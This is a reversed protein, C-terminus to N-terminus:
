NRLSFHSTGIAYPSASRALQARLAALVRRDCPADRLDRRSIMEMTDVLTSLWRTEGDGSRWSRLQQGM